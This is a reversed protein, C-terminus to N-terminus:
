KSSHLKPLNHLNTVVVHHGNYRRVDTRPLVNTRFSGAHQPCLYAKKEFVGACSIKQRRSCVNASMTRPQRRIEFVDECLSLRVRQISAWRPPLKHLMLSVGREDPTLNVQKLPCYLRV